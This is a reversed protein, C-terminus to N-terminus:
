LHMCLKDGVGVLLVIERVPFLAWSRRKQPRSSVDKQPCLSMLFLACGNPLRWDHTKFASLTWGLGNPDDDKGGSSPRDGGLFLPM